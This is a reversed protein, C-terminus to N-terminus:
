DRPARPENEFHEAPIVRGLADRYDTATMPEPHTRSLFRGGTMYADAEAPPLAAVEAHHKFSLVQRRRCTEFARCVTAAHACTQFAPGNWDDAEVIAKPSSLVDRRRSTELLALGHARRGASPRARGPTNPPSGSQQR